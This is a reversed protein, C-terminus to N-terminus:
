STPDAGTAKGHCCMKARGTPCSFFSTMGAFLVDEDLAPSWSLSGIKGSPFVPGGVSSSRGASCLYTYSRVKASRPFSIRLRKVHVRLPPTLHMPVASHERSPISMETGDSSRLWASPQLDVVHDTVSEESLGLDDEVGHVVDHSTNDSANQGTFVLLVGAWHYVGM